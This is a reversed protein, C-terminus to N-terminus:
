GAPIQNLVVSVIGRQALNTNGEDGATVFNNVLMSTYLGDSRLTGTRDFATDAKVQTGGGAGAGGGGTGGGGAGGSNQQNNGGTLGGVGTGCAGSFLLGAVLSMCAFLASFSRRNM